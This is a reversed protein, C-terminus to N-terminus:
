FLAVMGTANTSTSNVRKARIPLLTGAPLASFLCTTDDQMVAVIDGGGATYIWRTLKGFSVTDSKTIPAYEDSTAQLFGQGNM